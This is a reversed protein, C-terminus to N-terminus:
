EFEKQSLGALFKTSPNNLLNIIRQYEELGKSTLKYEGHAQPNEQQMEVLGLKRFGELTRRARERNLSSGLVGTAIQNVNSWQDGRKKLFSLIYLNTILPAQKTM